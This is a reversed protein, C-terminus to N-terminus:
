GPGDAEAGGRECRQGIPTSAARAGGADLVCWSGCWASPARRAGSSARHSRLREVQRVDLDRGERLDHRLERRHDLVREDAQGVDPARQAFVRRHRRAQQADRVTGGDAEALRHQRDLLGGRREARARHAVERQLRRHDVQEVVQRARVIEVDPGQPAVRDQGRLDRL